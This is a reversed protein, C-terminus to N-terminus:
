IRGSQLSQQIEELKNKTLGTHILQMQIRGLIAIECARAIHLYRFDDPIDPCYLFSYNSLRTIKSGPTGTIAVTYAGHDKAMKLASVVNSTVGSYSIGIAVDGKKLCLPAAIMSTSDLFFNSIVGVQTFLRSAMQITETPGGSGYLHITGAKAILNSVLDLAKTDMMRYTEMLAYQCAISLKETVDSFSDDKDVMVFSSNGVNIKQKLYTKFESFGSYKMSQCYRTIATTSTGIKEALQTISMGSVLDKNDEIYEAIRREARSLNRLAQNQRDM